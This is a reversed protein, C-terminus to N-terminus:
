WVSNLDAFCDGGSKLHDDCPQLIAGGGVVIMGGHKFDEIIALAVTGCTRVGALPVLLDHLGGSCDVANQSLTIVM